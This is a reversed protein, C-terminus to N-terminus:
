CYQVSPVLIWLDSDAHSVSSTLFTTRFHYPLNALVTLPWISVDAWDISDAALAPISVSNSVPPTNTPVMLGVLYGAGHRSPSVIRILVLCVAIGSPVFSM